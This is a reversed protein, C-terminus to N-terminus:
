GQGFPLESVTSLPAWLASPTPGNCSTDQNLLGLRQGTRRALIAKVQAFPMYLHIENDYMRALINRAANIDADLVDGSACYFQDGRRKGLLLGTTSDIQSTYAANVLCLASGRRQSVMELAEAMTGKVWGALRRNQDKGYKGNDSIPSRLDETAVTKAKNIVSHAAKFVKDRVRSTHLRKRRELKKRGLNCRRINAAKHPKKKDHKKALAKLKNRHQYKQKLYDSETSLLDGLGAGHRQGDSDAFVETYGKDIGVTASGSPVTSCEQQAEVQYHVEVQGDRLILRLTGSPQVNTNLPIAIRQGRELSMVDIWAQGNHEFATYCCNDLVIQNDVATHGHRFYKRMMRCLYSDEAWRDYKLLTYLRKREDDNNTRVRIAKRVKVKAAERYAAIDAMTDRLTEKWLRAPVGFQRGQALWENRVERDRLGLGALSGFRNWVEARTTGLRRALGTLRDLKGQNLQKSYAVRTVKAM